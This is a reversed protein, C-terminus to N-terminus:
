VERSYALIVGYVDTNFKFRISSLNRNNEEIYFRSELKKITRLIGHYIDSMDCKLIESNYYAEKSEKNDKWGIGYQNRFKSFLRNSNKVYADHELSFVRRTSELAQIREVLKIVDGVCDQATQPLLGGIAKSTNDCINTDTNKM